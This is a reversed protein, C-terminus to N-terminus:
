CDSWWHLLVLITHAAQLITRVVELRAPRRDVPDSPNQPDM